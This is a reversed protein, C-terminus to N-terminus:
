SAFLSDLIPCEPVDGKSYHEIMDDLVSEMQQLARIKQKVDGVHIATIEHM